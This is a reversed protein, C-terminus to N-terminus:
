QLLFLEIQSKTLEDDLVLKQGFGEVGVAMADLNQNLSGSYESLVSLEQQSLPPRVVLSSFGLEHIEEDVIASSREKRINKSEVGIVTAKLVHKNGDVDKVSITKSEKVTPSGNRKLLQKKAM